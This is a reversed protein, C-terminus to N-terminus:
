SVKSARSADGPTANYVQYGNKGRHKIQYMAQDAYELLRSLSDGHLPYLSIGISAGLVYANGEVTIPSTLQELLKNAIDNAQDPNELQTCIAVFEDGGVRACIDTSRTVTKIRTAIAKLVSDGVKHGAQDNIPKFNDLDIYFLAILQHPRTALILAKEFLMNMYRRNNLGTLPDQFAMDLANAEADQLRKQFSLLVAALLSFYQILVLLTGLLFGNTLWSPMWEMIIFASLWHLALMVSASATILMLSSQLMHRKRYTVWATFSLCGANFLAIGLGRTLPSVDYLWAVLIWCEVAVVATWLWGRRIPIQLFTAVGSVLCFKEVVNLAAYLSVILPTPPSEQPLLLVLRAALAFLM